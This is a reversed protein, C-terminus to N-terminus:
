PLDFQIDVLVTAFGFIGSRTGHKDHMAVSRYGQRLCILPIVCDSIKQDIGVDAEMLSFQIM